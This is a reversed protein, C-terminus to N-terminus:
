VFRYGVYDCQNCHINKKAPISTLTMMPNSDLLESKCQPCEVGNPQPANSFQNSFQFAQANNEELTKLKKSM